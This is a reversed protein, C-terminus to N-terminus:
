QTNKLTSAFKELVDTVSDELSYYVDGFIRAVEDKEDDNMDEMYEKREETEITLDHECLLDEFLGCIEIAAERSKKM